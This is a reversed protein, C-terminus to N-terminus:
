LLRMITETKKERKMLNNEMSWGSIPKEQKAGKELKGNCRPYFVFGM